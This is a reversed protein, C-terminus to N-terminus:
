KRRMLLRWAMASLEQAEDVIIHGFAWRRDAAARQATTLVTEDRHRRALARAGLLDTALLLETEDDHEAELSRSGAAIDLVGAAYEDRRAAVERARGASGDGGGLDGMLDGLLEAAEDLLPVDAPTWGGGPERRLMAREADTLGPAANALREPSAYLDALLQQPTLLPWLSDLAAAVAPEARLDRAIDALDAPGLLNPDGPADDGGLPDDAYPDTGIIEALREALAQTVAEVFVARALNHPRGSRRARARARECVTPDLWVTGPDTEGNLDRDLDRNVDRGLEIALGEDPVRQRDRVAAALVGAMEARGKIEATRAPEARRATVSPYLEGVTRLLV